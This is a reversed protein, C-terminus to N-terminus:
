KINKDFNETSVTIRIGNCAACKLLNLIKEEKEKQRTLSRDRRDFSAEFLKRKLDNYL